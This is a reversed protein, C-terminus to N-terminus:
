FAPRDVKDGSRKRAPTAKTNERNDVVEIARHGRNSAPVVSVPLYVYDADLLDEAWRSNWRLVRIDLAPDARM